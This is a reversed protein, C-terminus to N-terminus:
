CELYPHTLLALCSYEYYMGIQLYRWSISTSSFALYYMMGILFIPLYYVISTLLALCDDLLSILRASLTVFSAQWTM